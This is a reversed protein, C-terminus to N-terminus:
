QLLPMLKRTSVPETKEPIVSFSAQFSATSAPISQVRSGSKAFLAYSKTTRESVFHYIVWDVKRKAGITIFIFCGIATNEPIKCEEPCV